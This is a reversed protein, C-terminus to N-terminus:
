IDQWSSNDKHSISSLKDEFNSSVLEDTKRKILRNLRNMERRHSEDQNKRYANRLRNREIRIKDIEQSFPYRFKFPSKRPINNECAEHIKDVILDVCKEIDSEINLNKFKDAISIAEFDLEHRFDKWKAKKFNFHKLDISEFNVDLKFSVPFHDSSLEHHVKLCHIFNISKAVIFDLFSPAHGNAPLHTPESTPYIDYNKDDCLKKLIFGKHNSCSNNWAKHKANFDGAVLVAGPLSLISEHLKKYQDKNCSPSNYTVCFHFSTKDTFIEAFLAEGIESQIIKSIKYKLSRHVFLAIGGHPRDVKTCNFLPLHFKMLPKGRTETVAVIKIQNKEIFLSLESLKSQLSQANWLVCSIM